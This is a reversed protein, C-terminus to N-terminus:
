QGSKKPEPAKPIPVIPVMAAPPEAPPRALPRDNRQFTEGPKPLRENTMASGEYAPMSRVAFYTEVCGGVFVGTSVFWLAATLWHLRLGLNQKEPTEEGYFFQTAYTLAGVVAAVAVGSAFTLLPGAFYSAVMHENKALANGLFALVAVAAGANATAVLRIASQSMSILSRTNELKWALSHEHEKLWKELKVSERKIEIQARIDLLKDELKTAYADLGDAEPSPGAAKARLERAETRSVQASDLLQQGPVEAPTARNGVPTSDSTSV